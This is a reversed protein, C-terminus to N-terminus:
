PVELMEPSDSGLLSDVWRKADALLGTFRITCANEPVGVTMVMWERHWPEPRDGLPLPEGDRFPIIAIYGWDLAGGPAYLNLAWQHYEPLSSDICNGYWINTRDLAWAAENPHSRKLLARVHEPLRTSLFRSMLNDKTNTPSTGQAM